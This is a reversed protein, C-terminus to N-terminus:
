PRSLVTTPSGSQINDQSATSTPNTSTFGAPRSSGAGIGQSATNTSSNSVGATTIGSSSTSGTGTTGVTNVSSKKVTGGVAGGVIAGVVVLVIVLITIIGNRSRWFSPKPTAPIHTPSSFKEGSGAEAVGLTLPVGVSAPHPIQPPPNRVSLTRRPPQELLDVNYGEQLQARTARPAEDLLNQDYSSM